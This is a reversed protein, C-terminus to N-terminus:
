KAAPSDATQVEEMQDKVLWYILDGSSVVALLVGGEVIPLHRFRRRTILTMAEGVATTPPVHYPDKTMVKAVKTSGPDLGGALVKILADRETFIGLLKEGEMVVLAGIRESAMRRVCESVLTDSAVIHIGEHEQGEFIRSVPARRKDRSRLFYVSAAALVACLIFTYLVARFVDAGADEPAGLVLSSFMALGAAAASRYLHKNM